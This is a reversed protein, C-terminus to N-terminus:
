GTEPAELERARDGARDPAADPHVAACVAAVEFLHELAHEDRAYLPGPPERRQLEAERVPVRIEPVSLHDDLRLQVKPPAVRGRDLRLHGLEVGPTLRRLRRVLAREATDELIGVVLQRGPPHELCAPQLAVADAARLDRRLVCVEDLVGAAGPGGVRDGQHPLCPAARVLLVTDLKAVLDLKEALKRRELLLARRRPSGPRIAPLRRACGGRARAATAVSGRARAEGASARSAGDRREIATPTPSM